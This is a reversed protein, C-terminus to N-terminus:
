CCLSNCIITKVSVSLSHIYSSKITPKDHSRHKRSLDSCECIFKVTGVINMCQRLTRSWCNRVSDENMM